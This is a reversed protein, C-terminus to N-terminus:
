ANAVATGDLQELVEEIDGHIKAISEKVASFEKAQESVTANTEAPKVVEETAASDNSETSNKKALYRKCLSWTLAAAALLGVAGLVMTLNLGMFFEKTAELAVTLANKITAFM